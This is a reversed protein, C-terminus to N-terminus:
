GILLNPYGKASMCLYNKTIYFLEKINIGVLWNLYKNNALGMM